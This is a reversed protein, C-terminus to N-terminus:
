RALSRWTGAPRIIAQPWAVAWPGGSAPGSVALWGSAVAGSCTEDITERMLRRPRGGVQRRQGRGPEGRRRRQRSGTDTCRAAQKVAQSCAEWASAAPSGGRSCHDSPTKQGNRSPRGREREDDALRFCLVVDTDNDEDVGYGWCCQCSQGAERGSRERLVRVTPYLVLRLAIRV